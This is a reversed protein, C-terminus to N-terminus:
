ARRNWWVALGLFIAALPMLVVVRFFLEFVDGDSMHVPRASVRRAPLEILAQRQTLWGVIASAVDYNVVEQAGMFSPQFLDSDGLVVLRGARVDGEGERAIEAAAAVPVPGALDADDQAPEGSRVLEAINTEAYASPTTQMLVTAREDSVPRVPRVFDVVTGLQLERLPRTIAHDGYTAILFPGLPSTAGGPMVRRDLELVVARELRIGLDRLADELGTRQVEEREVEPDAAVLLSGGARVYAELLDAEAETFAVRPGVVFVADCGEAVSTAGRTEWTELELNERRLEDRLAGLDREGGRDLTWEGHGATLCVRTRRESVVELIGGTLAQESRVDIETRGEEAFADFDFTVLDDRTIKWNRAGAAMLVAVDSELGDGGVRQGLHYREALVQYESPSRDPDLLHLTLHDSEARYRQLLERLDEYSPEGASLLLYVDVDTDLERLVERTRDSLTFVGESTWDWRAYHRFSLYNVMFTIATLFVAALLTLMQGQRRREAAADVLLQKPAGPEVEPTRTKASM